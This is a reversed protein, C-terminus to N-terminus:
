EDDYDYDDYSWEYDGNQLEERVKEQLGDPIPEVLENTEIDRAEEISVDTVEFDEEPPDGPDGNRKYMCGPSYYYDCEASVTCEYDDVTVTGNYTGKAM